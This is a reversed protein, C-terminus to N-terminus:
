FENKWSKIKALAASREKRGLKPAAVALLAVLSAEDYQYHFNNMWEVVREKEFYAQIYARVREVMPLPRLPCLRECESAFADCHIRMLNRGRDDCRRVSAFTNLLLTMAAAVFYSWLSSLTPAPLGQQRLTSSFLRIRRLLDTLYLPQSQPSNEPQDVYLSSAAVSRILDALPPLVGLAAAELLIDRLEPALSLSSLSSALPALSVALCVVSLSEAAVLRCQLGASGQLQCNPSITPSVCSYDVSGDALRRLTVQASAPLSNSDDPSNFLQLLSSENSNGGQSLPEALARAERLLRGLADSTPPAESSSQFVFLNWCSSVYYRWLSNLAASVAFLASEPLREAQRGLECALQVALRSAPTVSIRRFADKLEASNTGVSASSAFLHEDGEEVHTRLLAADEEEEEEDEEGKTDDNEGERNSSHLHDAFPSLWGDSLGM